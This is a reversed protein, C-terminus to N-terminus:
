LSVSLGLSFQHMKDIGAPVVANSQFVTNIGYYAYINFLWWGTRLFVGYRLKALDNIKYYKVSYDTSKFASYSNIRYGVLGGFYFRFYQGRNNSKTRYRFEIPLDIYSASFRNANYSSDSPLYTYELEPSNPVAKINLNNHWFNSSFGLGYAIGWHSRRSFLSERMLMLQWGNSNWKETLEPPADILSQLSYSFHFWEGREPLYQAQLSNGLLLVAVFLFM